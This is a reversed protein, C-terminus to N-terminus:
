TAEKGHAGGENPGGIQHLASLPALAQKIREYGARHDPAEQLARAAMAQAVILISQSPLAATARQGADIGSVKNLLRNVNMHVFHENDSGHALEHLRDHVAHYGPLYETTRLQLAKRADSFARVLKVKLAVVAKTNRSFTLLLFSQDENLLAFTERQGSPLPATEFPVKGFAEFAAKHTRVLELTHKHKTGLSDALKRSDARAVDKIVTVLDTTTTTDTTTSM